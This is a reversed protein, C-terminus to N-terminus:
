CICSRLRGKDQQVHMNRRTIERCVHTPDRNEAAQHKEQNFPLAGWVRVTPCCPQLCCQPPPQTFVALIFTTGKCRTGQPTYTRIQTQVSEGALGLLHQCPRRWREAGRVLGPTKHPHQPSYTHTHWCAQDARHPDSTSTISLRATVLAISLLQPFLSVKSGWLKWGQPPSPSLFLSLPFGWLNFPSVPVNNSNIFARTASSGIHKARM